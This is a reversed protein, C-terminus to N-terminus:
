PHARVVTPPELVIEGGCFDRKGLRGAMISDMAPDLNHRALRAALQVTLYGLDRPEWHIVLPIVGSGLYRRDEASRGAGIVRVDRRGSLM